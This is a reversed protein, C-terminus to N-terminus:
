QTEEESTRTRPVRIGPRWLQEEPEPTGAGDRAAGDSAAAHGVAADRVAGARV